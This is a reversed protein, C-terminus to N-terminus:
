NQTQTDGKGRDDTVSNANESLVEKNAISSGLVMTESLNKSARTPHKAALMYM